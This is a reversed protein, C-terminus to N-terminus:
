IGSFIKEPNAGAYVLDIAQQTNNNKIAIFLPTLDDVNTSDLNLQVDAQLLKGLNGNVQLLKKTKSDPSDNFIKDVVNLSYPQAIEEKSNTITTDFEDIAFECALHLLTNGKADKQNFNFNQNKAAIVLWPFVANALPNKGIALCTHLPTYGQKDQTNLDFKNDLLIKIKGVIKKKTALSMNKQLYDIAFQLFTQGSKNRPQKKIANIQERFADEDLTLLQTEYSEIM